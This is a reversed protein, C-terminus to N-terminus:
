GIFSWRRRDPSCEVLEFDSLRVGHTNWFTFSRLHTEPRAFRRIAPMSRLEALAALAAACLDRVRDARGASVVLASLDQGYREGLCELRWM